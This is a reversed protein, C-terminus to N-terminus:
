AIVEGDADAESWIFDSRQHFSITAPNGTKTHLGRIEFHAGASLDAEAILGDAYAVADIDAKLHAACFAILEARAALSLDTAIIM